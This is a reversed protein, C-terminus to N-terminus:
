RARRGREGHACEFLGMWGEPRGHRDHAAPELIGVARAVPQGDALAVVAHLEVLGAAAEAFRESVLAESAPAWSPDDAYVLLPLARFAAFAPDDVDRVTRVVLEASM